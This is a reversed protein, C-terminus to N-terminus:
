YTIIIMINSNLSLLLAKEQDRLPSQHRGYHRGNSCHGDRHTRIM